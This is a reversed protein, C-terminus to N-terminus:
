DVTADAFHSFRDIALTCRGSAEAQWPPRPQSPQAKAPIVAALAKITSDRSETSPNLGLFPPAGTFLVALLVGVAWIDAAPLNCAEAYRSPLRHWEPADLPRLPRLAM